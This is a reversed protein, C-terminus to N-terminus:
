MYNTLQFSSAQRKIIINKASEALSLVKFRTLDSVFLVYKISQYVSTCLPIMGAFANSEDKKLVEHFFNAAHLLHKEYKTRDELNSFYINGLSLNAYGDGRLGPQIYYALSTVLLPSVPESTYPSDIDVSVSLAVCHSRFLPLHASATSLMSPPQSSSLCIWVCTAFLAILSEGNRPNERVEKTSSGM